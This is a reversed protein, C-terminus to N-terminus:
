DRSNEKPILNTKQKNYLQTFRNIGAVEINWKRASLWEVAKEVSYFECTICSSNDCGIFMKYIFHSYDSAFEETLLVHIPEHLKAHKKARTFNASRSIVTGFENIIKIM